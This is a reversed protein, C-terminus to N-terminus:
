VQLVEAVDETQTIPVDFTTKSLDLYNFSYDFRIFSNDIAPHLNNAVLYSKCFMSHYYKYMKELKELKELMETKDLVNWEEDSINKYNRDISTFINNVDEIVKLTDSKLKNIKTGFLTIRFLKSPITQLAAFCDRTLTSYNLYLQKQKEISSILIEIVSKIQSFQNVDGKFLPYIKKAIFLQTPDRNNITNYISRNWIRKALKSGNEFEPSSYFKLDYDYRQNVGVPFKYGIDKGKFKFIYFNTVEIWEEGYKGWLDLKTPTNNTFCKELAVIDLIKKHLPDDNYEYIIKYGLIIDDISWRILRYKRIISYLDFYLQGNLKKNNLLISKIKEFDSEKLCKKKYLKDLKELCVSQDYDVIDKVFYPILDIIDFVVIPKDSTIPDIGLSNIFDDFVNWFGCKFDAMIFKYHTLKIDTAIGILTQLAFKTAEEITSGPLDCIEMMDIDGPYAHVSYKYSGVIPLKEVNKNFTLKTLFSVLETDIDKKTITKTILDNMNAGLNNSAEDLYGLEMNSIIKKQKRLADILKEIMDDVKLERDDNNMNMLEHINNDLKQLLENKESLNKVLNRKALFFNNKIDLFLKNKHSLETSM